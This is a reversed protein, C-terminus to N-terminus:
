KKTKIGMKSVFSTAKSTIVNFDEHHLILVIGLINALFGLIADPSFSIKPEYSEKIKTLREVNQLRTKYEESMPDMKEMELLLDDIEKQITTRKDKKRFM